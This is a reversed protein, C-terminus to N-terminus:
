LTYRYGVRPSWKKVVGSRSRVSYSLRTYSNITSYLAFFRELVSAFLYCSNGPYLAEDFQVHIDLGRCIADVWSPDDVHRPARATGM